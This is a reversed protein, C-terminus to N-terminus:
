AAGERRRRVLPEVAVLALAGALLWPTAASRTARGRRLARAAALPGEGALRRVLSDALPAVPAPAGGCPAAIALAANRLSARLALDGVPTVPVAVSRVCGAGLPAETAAPAGDVWRAVPVGEPPRAAREFPAVVVHDGVVLAGVTDAAERAALGAGDAREPWWVLTGGGRAWASDAATPTDRVIRASLTDAAAGALAVTARLPDDPAGRLELRGREGAARHKMGTRALTIRGPWLARIAPTADDWSEAALPSVLVLELSDAREALAPAARLAAVLAASLSGRAGSSAPALLSDPSGLPRAASDYALLV